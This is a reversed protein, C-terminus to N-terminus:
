PRPCLLTFSVVQDCDAVMNTDLRSLSSAESKMVFTRKEVGSVRQGLCGCCWVNEDKEVSSIFEM